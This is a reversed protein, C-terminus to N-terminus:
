FVAALGLLAQRCRVMKDGKSENAEIPCFLAYNDNTLTDWLRQVNAPTQSETSGRLLRELHVRLDSSSSQSQVKLLSKAFDSTATTETLTKGAVEQLMKAGEHNFLKCGFDRLLKLLEANIWEGTGPKLTSQAAVTNLVVKSNYLFTELTKRLDST